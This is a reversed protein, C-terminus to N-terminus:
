ASTADRVLDCENDHLHKKTLQTFTHGRPGVERPVKRMETMGRLWLQQWYRFLDLRKVRSMTSRHTISEGGAVLLQWRIRKIAVTRSYEQERETKTGAMMQAESEGDYLKRQTIKLLTMPEEAIVSDWYQESPTAAM